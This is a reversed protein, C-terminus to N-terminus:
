KDKLCLLHYNVIYYDVMAVAKVSLDEMHFVSDYAGTGVVYETSNTNEDTYVDDACATAAEAHYNKLSNACLDTCLETLSDSTLNAWPADFAAESIILPSCSINVSLAKQCKASIFTTNSPFGFLKISADTSSSKPNGDDESRSLLPSPPDAFRHRLSAAALSLGLGILYLLCCM